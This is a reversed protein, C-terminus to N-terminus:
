KLIKLWMYYYCSVDYMKKLGIKEGKIMMVVINLWYGFYFGWGFFWM